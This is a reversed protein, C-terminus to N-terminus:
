PPLELYFVAQLLLLNRLPMAGAVVYLKGV